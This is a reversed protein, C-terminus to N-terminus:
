SDAQSQEADNAEQNLQEVLVDYVDPDLERVDDYSL